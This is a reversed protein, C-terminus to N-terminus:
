GWMVKSLSRGRVGHVIRKKWFLWYTSQSRCNISSVTQISMERTRTVPVFTASISFMGFYHGAISLSSTELDIERTWHVPFPHSQFLHLIEEIRMCLFNFFKWYHFWILFFWNINFKKILSGYPDNKSFIYLIYKANIITWNYNQQM